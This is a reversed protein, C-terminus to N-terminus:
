STRKTTSGKYEYNDDAADRISTLLSEAARCVRALLARHAALQGDICHVICDDGVCNDSNNEGIGVDVCNAGTGTAIRNEGDSIDVNSTGTGNGICSGGLSTAISSEDMAIGNGGNGDDNCECEACEPACSEGDASDDDGIYFMQVTQYPYNALKVILPSTRPRHPRGAQFIMVITAKTTQAARTTARTDRGCEALLALFM